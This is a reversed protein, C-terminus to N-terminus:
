TSPPLLVPPIISTDAGLSAGENLLPLELFDGHTSSEVRVGREVLAALRHRLLPLDVFQFESGPSNSLRIVCLGPVADKCAHLWGTLGVAFPVFTQRGTTRIGLHTLLRPLRQPSYIEECHAWEGVSLFLRTIHTETLTSFARPNKIYATTLSSTSAFNAGPPTGRRLAPTCVLDAHRLNPYLAFPRISGESGHPPLLFHGFTLCPHAFSADAGVPILLGILTHLNPTSRLLALVEKNRWDSHTKYVLPNYRAGVWCLRRLSPGCTNGLATFIESSMWNYYPGESHRVANNAVFIRLHPAHEIIHVVLKNADQEEYEHALPVESLAIDLRRIHAGLEPKDELIGALLHLTCPKSILAARYLLPTALAHWSRCVCVIASRTPITAHLAALLETPRDLYALETTPHDFPDLVDPDFAGPVDTAFEFILCWLESPIHPPGISPLM